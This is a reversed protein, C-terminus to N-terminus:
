ERTPFVTNFAKLGLTSFATNIDDITSANKILNTVKNAYDIRNFVLTDNETKSFFNFLEENTFFLSLDTFDKNLFVEKTKKNVNILNRRKELLTTNETM